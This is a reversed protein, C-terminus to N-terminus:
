GGGARPHRKQARQPNWSNGSGGRESLGPVCRSKCHCLGAWQRLSASLGHGGSGARGPAAGAPEGSAQVGRQEGGQGAEQGHSLSHGGGRVGVGMRGEQNSRKLGFPSLTGQLSHRIPTTWCAAWPLGVRWPWGCHQQPQIPGLSQPTVRSAAPTQRAPFTAGARTLSADGRPVM